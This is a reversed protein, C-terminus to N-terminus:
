VLKSLQTYLDELTTNNIEYDILKDSVGKESVHGDSTAGQRHIRLIVGGVDRLMRAENDFRVDSIVFNSDKNEPNELINKIQVVWIDDQFYRCVESGLLQLVVRYSTNYTVGCDTEGVSYPEFVEIFREQYEYWRSPPIGLEEAMKIISRFPTTFIQRHERDAETISVCGVYKNTVEKLKAAFSLQIYGHMDKYYTAATDKGSRKYGTIGIVKM